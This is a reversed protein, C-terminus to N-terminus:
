PESAKDGPVALLHRAVDAGLLRALHRLSADMAPKATAATNKGPEHLADGTDSLARARTLSDAIAAPDTQLPSYPSTTNVEGSMTSRIGHTALRFIARGWIEKSHESAVNLATGFGLRGGALGPPRRPQRIVGPGDMQAQFVAGHARMEEALGVEQAPDTSPTTARCKSPLLSAM